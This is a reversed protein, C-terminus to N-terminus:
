FFVIQPHRVVVEPHGEEMFDIAVFCRFPDFFRNPILNKRFTKGIPIRAVIRFARQSPTRCIWAALVEEAAVQLPDDIVKIIQLVQTDVADIEARNKFSRGVMLVIRDIVQLDVRSEAISFSEFFEHFFAVLAAHFDHQIGDEIMDTIRRRLPLVHKCVPFIRLVDVPEVDILKRSGVFATFIEFIGVVDSVIDKGGVRM